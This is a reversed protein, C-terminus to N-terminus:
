DGDELAGQSLGKAVEMLLLSRLAECDEECVGFDGGWESDQWPVLAARLMGM